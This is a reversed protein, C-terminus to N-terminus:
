AELTTITSTQMGDDFKERTSVTVETGLYSVEQVPRSKWHRITTTWTTWNLLCSCTVNRPVCDNLSHPRGSRQWRKRKLITNRNEKSIRRKYVNWSIRSVSKTEDPCCRSLEYGLEPRVRWASAGRGTLREEDGGLAESSRAIKATTM